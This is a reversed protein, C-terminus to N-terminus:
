SGVGVGCAALQVLTLPDNAEFRVDPDLGIAHFAADVVAPTNM